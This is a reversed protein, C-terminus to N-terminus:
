LGLFHLIEEGRVSTPEEAAAAQAVRQVHRIGGLDVLQGLREAANGRVSAALHQAVVTVLIALADRVALRRSVVISASRSPTVCSASPGARVTGIFLGRMVIRNRAVSAM